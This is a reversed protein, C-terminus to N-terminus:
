TKCVARHRDANYYAASKARKERNVDCGHLKLEFVRIVYFIHQKEHQNDSNRKQVNGVLEVNESRELFHFTEHAIEQEHRGEIVKELM